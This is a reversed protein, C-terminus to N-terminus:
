TGAYSILEPCGCLDFGIGATRGHGLHTSVKILLAMLDFTEDIFDLEEM